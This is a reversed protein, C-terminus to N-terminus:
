GHIYVNVYIVIIIPLVFVGIFLLFFYIRGALSRDFWNLGCHFGLGEPVYSSMHGFLPPIAWVGGFIFCILLFYFNHTEFQRQFYISFPSNATTIYRVISLAVLMYMTVCGNFFSNFGEMKCISPICLRRCLFCQATVSPVSIIIVCLSSVLMGVILANDRRPLTYYKNNLILSRINIVFSALSIILLLLGASRAFICENKAVMRVSSPNTDNFISDFIQFSLVSCSCKCNIGFLNFSKIILIKRFM